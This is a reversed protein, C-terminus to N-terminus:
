NNSDPCSHGEFIVEVSFILYALSNTGEEFLFAGEKGVTARVWSEVEQAFLDNNLGADSIADDAENYGTSGAITIYQLFGTAGDNGIIVGLSTPLKVSSADVPEAEAFCNDAAPLRLTLTGDKILDYSIAVGDSYIGESLATTFQELYKTNTRAGSNFNRVFSTPESVPEKGVPDPKGNQDPEIPDPEIPDPTAPQSEVPQPPQVVPQPQVVVPQQVAPAPQQVIPPAEPEPVPVFVPEPEPEPLEIEPLESVQISEPLEPDEEVIEEREPVPLLMALGHLGASVILLPSLFALAKRLPTRLTKNKPSAGLSM